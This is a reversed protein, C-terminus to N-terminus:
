DLYTAPTIGNLVVLRLYDTNGFINNGLQPLRRKPWRKLRDCVGEDVFGGDQIVHRQWPFERRSDCHGRERDDAAGAKWEHAFGRLNKGANERSPLSPSELTLGM